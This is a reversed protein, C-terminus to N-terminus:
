QALKETLLAGLYQALSVYGKPLENAKTNRISVYKDQGEATLHLTYMLYGFAESPERDFGYSDKMSFIDVSELLEKVQGFEEDTLKGEKIVPDYKKTMQFTYYDYVEAKYNKDSDISITQKYNSESEMTYSFSFEKLERKCGTTVFLFVFLLLFLTARLKMISM